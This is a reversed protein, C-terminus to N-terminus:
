KQSLKESITPNMTATDAQWVLVEDDDEGYHDRHAEWLIGRRAYPTGLGILLAGPITAMSPRLANIVEKDPNVTDESRWFAVEDCLCCVVTRGRVARFSSTHVEISVGNLVPTGGLSVRVETTALLPAATAGPAGSEVALAAM